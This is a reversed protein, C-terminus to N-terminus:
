QSMHELARQQVAIRQDDNLAMGFYDELIRELYVVYEEPTPEDVIWMEYFNSPVGGKLRRRVPKATSHQAASVHFVIITPIDRADVHLEQLVADECTKLRDVTVSGEAIRTSFVMFRPPRQAQAPVVCWLYLLVLLAASLTIRAQM